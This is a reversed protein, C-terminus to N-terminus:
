SKTLHTEGGGIDTTQQGYASLSITRGGDRKLLWVIASKEFEVRVVDEEREVNAEVVEVWLLLEKNVDVVRKM